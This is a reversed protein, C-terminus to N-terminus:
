SGNIIAFCFKTHAYYNLIGSSRSIRNFARCTFFPVPIAHSHNCLRAPVRKVSDRNRRDEPRIIAKMKGRGPLLREATLSMKVLPISHKAARGTLLCSFAVSRHVNFDLSEVFTVPWKGMELYPRRGYAFTADAAAPSKCYKM